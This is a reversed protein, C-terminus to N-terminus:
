YGESNVKSFSDSSTSATIVRGFRELTGKYPASGNHAVWGELNFALPGDAPIWEGNYKRAIHIHTGTSSGGECSPHGIRDGAQVISGQAIRDRTAVHLYFVVWGTNEDADKDLDLVVIGPSSRAIIGDAVATAFIDTEVCGSSQTPPAFDIAAFPDGLGWGTHPGGTYTWSEGPLFPFRFEPQELSGPILEELGDWPSGFLERYTKALGQDSIALTYQEFDMNQAFYYHLAVTAANQWPDPYELQESDIDFSVLRGTRWGYYGNNMINVAWVLQLYVGKHYQEVYGLPYDDSPFAGPDSLGNLQYEIVALILRPNVSFNRALYHILAGGQRWQGGAYESYNKLWGPQSNVYNVTDFESADPGFVFDNDPIIQYQSGWLARYYIPIKLPLGAPLTTVESPLIGNAFRIEQETTNFRAALGPLTDGSQAIYDVLEGPEYAPRTPEDTVSVIPGGTDTIILFLPTDSRNNSLCGTLLLVAGLIPIISRITKM